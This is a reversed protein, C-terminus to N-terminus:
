PASVVVPMAARLQKEPAAGAARSRSQKSRHRGFYVGDFLKTKSIGWLKDQPSSGSLGQKNPKKRWVLCM